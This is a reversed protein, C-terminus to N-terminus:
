MQKKASSKMHASSRAQFSAKLHLSVHMVLQVESLAAGDSLLTSSILSAATSNKCLQSGAVHEMRLLKVTVMPLVGHGTGGNM